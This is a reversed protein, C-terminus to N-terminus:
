DFLYVSTYIRLHISWEELAIAPGAEIQHHDHNIIIISCAALKGAKARDTQQRCM